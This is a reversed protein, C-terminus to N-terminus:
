PVVRRMNIKVARWAANRTDRKNEGKQRKKAKAINTYKRTGNRKVVCDFAIAITMRRHLSCVPVAHEKQKGKIIKRKRAMEVYPEVENWNWENRWENMRASRVPVLVSKRGNLGGKRGRECGDRHAAGAGKNRARKM